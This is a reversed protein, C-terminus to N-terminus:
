RLSGGPGGLLQDPQKTTANTDAELVVDVDAGLKLRVKDGNVDTLVNEVRIERYLEDAEQVSIEAKEPERPGIPKLVKEVRGRLRKLKNKSM